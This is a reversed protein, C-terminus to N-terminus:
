SGTPVTCSVIAGWDGRQGNRLLWYAALYCQSGGATEPLTIKTPSKTAVVPQTLLSVSTIPTDSVQYYIQCSGVGYPKAKVSVSVSDRYRVYLQLNAGAQVSLVPVSDPPTIPSPTSTKPNLGLALKNGASVGPNNAIAQAYTRVQATVGVKAINKDQVAQPTKTANSTLPGYAAAWIANQAAITAADSTLLGYMSPSASILSSFNALWSTFDGERTPMYPALSPM